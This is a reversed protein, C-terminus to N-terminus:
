DEEKIRERFHKANREELTVSFDVGGGGGHGNNLSVIYLLRLLIPLHAWIFTDSANRLGVGRLLM